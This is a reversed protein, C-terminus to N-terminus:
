HNPRKTTVEHKDKNLGLLRYVMDLGKAKAALDPVEVFGKTISGSGRDIITAPILKTGEILKKLHSALFEDDMDAREIEANLVAQVQPNKLTQSVQSAATRPSFGADIGAQVTSKGDLIAEIIAARREAVVTRNKSAQTKPQIGRPQRKQKPTVTTETTILQTMM